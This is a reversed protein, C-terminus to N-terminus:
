EEYVNSKKRHFLRVHTLKPATPAHAPSDPLSLSPQALPHPLPQTETEAAGGGSGSSTVPSTSMGSTFSKGRRTELSCWRHSFGLWHDSIVNTEGEGQSQQDPNKSNIPLFHCNTSDFANQVQTFLEQATTDDVASYSDHVLVYYKLISPNFYVPYSSSTRDHQQRQQNSSLTRFVEVPNPNTSSVIFICGLSHKLYEHDVVPLTQLYYKMWIDFWPTYGPADVSIKDLHKTVMDREDCNEESIRDLMLKTNVSKNPDKKFDQLIINLSPVNHNQGDVDKMTVDTSM